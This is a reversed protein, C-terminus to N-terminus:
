SNFKGFITNNYPIYTYIQTETMFDVIYKVLSVLFKQLLYINLGILNGEGRNM